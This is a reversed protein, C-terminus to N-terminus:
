AAGLAARVKALAAEEAPHVGHTAHAVRDVAGLVTARYNEVEGPAKEALIGLSRRLAPLVQAEAEAPSSKPLKPLGGTTLVEKILGTSGALADSAAFSERLMSFFGPDANSVLYVAGFAATKLVSKEDDTLPSTM